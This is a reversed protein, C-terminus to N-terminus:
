RPASRNSAPEALHMARRIAMILLLLSPAGLGNSLSELHM